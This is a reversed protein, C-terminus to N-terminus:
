GKQYQLKRANIQGLIEDLHDVTELLHIIASKDKEFLSTDQNKGKRASLAKKVLPNEREQEEEEQEEEERGNERDRRVDIFPLISYSFFRNRMRYYMSPPTFLAWSLNKVSTEFLTEWQSAYIASTAAIDAHPSVFSSDTVFSRDYIKQDQAYREHIKVDLNDITTAKM